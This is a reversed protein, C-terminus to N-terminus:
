ANGDGANNAKIDAFILEARTKNNTAKSIDVGRMTAIKELYKTGGKELQALTKSSGPGGSSKEDDVEPDDEANGDGANNNGSNDNGTGDGDGANPDNELDKKQEDNEVVKIRGSKCGLKFMPDDRVWDPVTTFGSFASQVTENTKPNRFEYARKTFVSFM